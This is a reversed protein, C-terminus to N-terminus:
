EVEEVWGPVLFTDGPVYDQREMFHWFARYTLGAYAGSGSSTGYQFHEVRGPGRVDTSWPSDWAGAESTLISRGRYDISGDPREAGIEELQGELRGSVRPDSAECAFVWPGPGDYATEKMTAIAVVPTWDAPTAGPGPAPPVPSGDITEIWGAGVIEIDPAFGEADDVSRGSSRAVLGAYGGTGKQTLYVHTAHAAEGAGAIGGTWKGVWTGGQNRLRSTGWLRASDDAQRQDINLVIDITGSLRPDSCEHRYTVVAGHMQVVDGVTETTKFPREKVKAETWVVPLMGHFEQVAVPLSPPSASTAAATPTMADSATGDSSGCAALTFAAFLVLAALALSAATRARYRSPGKM